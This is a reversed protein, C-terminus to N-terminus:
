KLGPALTVLPCDDLITDLVNKGLQVTCTAGYVCLMM